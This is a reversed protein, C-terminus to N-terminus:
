LSYLYIHHEATKSTKKNASISLFWCFLWTTCDMKAVSQTDRLGNKRAFHWTYKSWISMWIAVHVFCWSMQIWWMEHRPYSVHVPTWSMNKCMDSWALSTSAPSKNVDISALRTTWHENETCITQHETFSIEACETSGRPHDSGKAAKAVFVWLLIPSMSFSLFNAEHPDSHKKSANWSRGYGLVGGLCHKVKSSKSTELRFSSRATCTPHLKLPFLPQFVSLQGHQFGHLFRLTCKLSSALLM